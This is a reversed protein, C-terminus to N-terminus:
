SGTMLEPLPCSESVEVAGGPAREFTVKRPFYAELSHRHGVTILTADPLDELLVQMIEAEAGPDLTDTAEQIFIWKPAHLLLRAFGVRQQEAGTLVAEWTATDDLRGMLHDLGVRRLAQVVRERDYADPGSPYAIAERLTGLPLYPRQPMFFLGRDAPVEIRGHGWQWLGGVARFLKVGTAPDGDILVREGAQIEASFGSVIAKGDAESLTVDHFRLTAAGDVLEIHCPTEEIRGHIDQLAEYLALVRDVSARWEAGRPLNDVPWSLAATMQQFAQGTQMLVGLTISGAIYRPASVLLPFVTAMTGYGSTFMFIHALARTQRHWAGKIGQFLIHLRRREDSEGHLLTIAESNERARVLGFRFDAEATQRRNVAHVLPRGLWLAAGTGAGAYLLAVFVMHGPVSLPIGLLSVDIRGSLQWLISSFSVLLLVCYFLSHALEIAAEATIRIDEAIRGDPNDSGRMHLVRHHRGDAMWEHLLRRTLWRRWGIIIRRKVVMHLATVAMSGAVIALLWGIQLLFREMSKQELANFFEASWVNILIPVIVQGVTLVVLMLTFGRVRWKKESSWYPGALSLFRRTFSQDRRAARRRERGEFHSHNLARGGWPAGTARRQRLLANGPDARWAAFDRRREM